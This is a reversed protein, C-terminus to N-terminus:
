IRMRPSTGGREAGAVGPPQQRLWPGPTDFRPSTESAVSLLFFRKGGDLIVLNDTKAGDANFITGTCNPDVTYSGSPPSDTWDPQHRRRIIRRRKPGCSVWM